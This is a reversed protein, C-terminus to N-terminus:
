TNSPSFAVGYSSHSVGFGSETYPADFSAPSDLHIGVARDHACTTPTRGGRTSCPSSSGAARAASPCSAREDGVLAARRGDDGVEDDRQAREHDVAQGAGPVDRVLARDAPVLEGPSTSVPRPRRGPGPRLRDRGGLQVRGAGRGAGGVGHEVVARQAEGAARQEGVVVLEGDSRVQDFRAGRGLSM